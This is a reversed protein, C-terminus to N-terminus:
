PRLFSLVSFPLNRLIGFIVMAAFGCWLWAPPLFAAPHKLSKLFLRRSARWGLAAMALVLLANFHFAAAVHGHLLQHLARLSGCGPCYLGTLAHFQCRPYFGHQGPDFLYLLALCVSFALGAIVAPAHKGRASPLDPSSEISVSSM